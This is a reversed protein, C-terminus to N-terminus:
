FRQATMKGNGILGPELDVRPLDGRASLQDIDLDSGGFKGHSTKDWYFPKILLEWLGKYAAVTGFFFYFPLTLTWGIHPAKELRIAAIAFISLTLAECALFFTMMSTAVRPSLLDILPHPWTTLTTVIGWWLVPAIFFSMLTGLFLLQFGWFKCPGLEDWLARPDRMHVCWTVAYGKMWRSRQKIWPWLQSNAEEQTVSQVMECRYGHRALRIGLDADETVNHADWAGLDVLRDRRFFLTTGGLPIAFGLKQLGPLMIRFWAAYEFAFCRSLWNKHGNYFSLIGQVCALDDTGDRFKRVVKHIQQPDPADEADYVGVIEGSTFDLAYNMARPKTKVTGIPVRIVRMWNPLTAAELARRTILDEAEVILCIELLERPYDLRELRKILAHAINEERFLPVLISVKPLKKGLKHETHHKFKPRALPKNRQFLAICACIAKLTTNCLLTFIAILYICSLVLAPLMILTALIAVMGCGLTIQARRTSWERCSLRTEVRAEAKTVLVDGYATHILRHIQKPDALVFRIDGSDPPLKRQIVRIMEPNAVALVTSGGEIKWPIFSFSVCDAPDMHSMLRPDVPHKDLDVHRWHRQQALAEYVHTRSVMEQGILIDGLLVKERTQLLLARTLNEHSLYGSKILLDGLLSHSTAASGQGARPAFPRIKRLRLTPATM